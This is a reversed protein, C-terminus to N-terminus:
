KMGEDERRDGEVGVTAQYVGKVLREERMREVHEFCELVNRGITGSVNLQYGCWGRILSSRVRDNRRIGNINKLHMM